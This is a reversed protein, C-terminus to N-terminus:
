AADEAEVAIADAFSRLKAEQEASISPMNFVNTQINVTAQTKYAGQMKALEKLSDRESEELKGGDLINEVHKATIWTTSPIDALARVREEEDKFVALKTILRKAQDHSLGSKKLAEDEDWGSERYVKLFALDTLKLKKLHIRIDFTEPTLPVGEDDFKQPVYYDNGVRAIKRSADSVELELLKDEPNQSM